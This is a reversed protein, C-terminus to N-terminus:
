SQPAVVLRPAGFIAFDYLGNAPTGPASEQTNFIINVTQGAYEQLDIAIPVWARDGAVRYPDVTRTLIDKYADGSSVGVRFYVGDTGKPWAEEKLALFLELRARAPVKIDHFIIRSPPHAYISPKTEGGITQPDMSFAASPNLPTRKEAGRFAEVLDIGGDDSGQQLWLYGAVGVVALVAVILWTRKM